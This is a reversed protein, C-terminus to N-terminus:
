DIVPLYLSFVTGRGLESYVRINGGHMLVIQHCTYLGLGLGRQKTTVFPAFLEDKIFDEPMGTGSDAIEILAQSPAGTEGAAPMLMTRIALHGGGPMADCANDLINYVANEVLLADAWVLPLDGYDETIRIGHADRRINDLASRVVENLNIRLKVIVTEKQERFRRVMQDMQQTSDRLTRLLSDRFGPADYNVELNQDLCRLRFSINKMDHALISGLMNLSEIRLSRILLQNTVTLRDRLVRVAEALQGVEDAGAVELANLPQNSATEDIASRIARLDSLNSGFLRAGALGVAGIGVVAIAIRYRLAVGLASLLLEILPLSLAGAALLSIKQRLQM